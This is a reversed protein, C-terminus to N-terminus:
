RISFGHFLYAVLAIGLVGLAACAVAALNVWYGSPVEAPRLSRVVTRYQFVALFALATGLVIFGAGIWLSLAPDIHAVSPGAMMEAFLGFREVVFGFAMLALSTRVWALLTREAAFLV